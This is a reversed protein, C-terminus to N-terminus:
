ILIKMYKKKKELTYVKQEEKTLSQLGDRLTVDFPEPRGLNNYFQYSKVNLSCWEVFPNHCFIQTKQNTPTKKLLHLM